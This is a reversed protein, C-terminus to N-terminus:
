MIKVLFVLFGILLANADFGILVPRLKETEEDNKSFVFISLEIIM